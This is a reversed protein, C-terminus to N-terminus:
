RLALLARDRELEFLADPVVEDALGAAAAALQETGGVVPETGLMEVDVDLAAAIAEPVLSGAVPAADEASTGGKTRPTVRGAVMRRITDDMTEVRDVLGRQLAAQALFGRGRDEMRRVRSEPWGLGKSVAKVFMDDYGDVVSQLHARADDGLPEHANGEYKSSPSRLVTVTDGEADARRSEERHVMVTGISGVMASPSAVIEDAQAGLYYAASAMLTNAIAVIPKEGGRAARIETALEEIGDVQGGPSDFEFLISGVADDALAERFAAKVDSVSTAGSMAAFLSARPVLTGYVPIVAVAGSSRRGPRPGQRAAAAEINAAIMDQSMRDGSLRLAMLEAITEMQEPLVYWPTGFVARAVHPYKM